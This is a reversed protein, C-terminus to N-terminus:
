KIQCFSHSQIYYIILLLVLYLTGTGFYKTWTIESAEFCHIINLSDLLEDDIEDIIIQKTSSTNASNEERIAKKIKKYHKQQLGLHVFSIYAFAMLGIIVITKNSYPKLMISTLLILCYSIDAYHDLYDGFITVQNTKRALHGDLCDFLYFLVTGIIPIVFDCTFYFYYLAFLGIIVRSITIANPTIKFKQCTPVMLECLDLLYDDIPNEFEPPIKRGTSYFKGNYTKM